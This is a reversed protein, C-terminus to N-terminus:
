PLRPTMATLTGRAVSATAVGNTEWTTQTAPGNLLCVNSIFTAPQTPTVISLRFPTTLATPIRRVAVVLTANQAMGTSLLIALGHRPCVRVSALSSVRNVRKVDTYPSRPTTATLTGRAAIVIAALTIEWSAQVAPGNLLCVNSIFTAPRVPPAVSSRSPTMMVTPIRHVAVATANRVMATSLLM